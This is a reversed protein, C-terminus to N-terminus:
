SVWIESGFALTVAEDFSGVFRVLERSVAPPITVSTDLTERNGEPLLLLRLGRNYAGRVKHEVEGVPQVVLVDHADALQPVARPSVFSTAEIRRVGAAIMADIIEAKVATDIFRQETQFGDRTGVETIQVHPCTPPQTVYNM